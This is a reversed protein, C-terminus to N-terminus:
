AKPGVRQELFDLMEKAQSELRAEHLDLLCEVPDAWQLRRPMASMKINDDPAFFSEKRRLVHVVLTAPADREGSEELAPDLREIFSWDIRGKPCHLLLDLRPLGILDIDPKYHRAGEIGGIALDSRNLTALRRLLSQPSRPQGGGM